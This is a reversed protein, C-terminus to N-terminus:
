LISFMGDPPLSRPFQTGAKWNAKTTEQRSVGPTFVSNGAEETEGAKLIAKIWKAPPNWTVVSKV